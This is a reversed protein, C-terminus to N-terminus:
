FFRQQLDQKFPLFCIKSVSLIGSLMWNGSAEATGELVARRESLPQFQVKALIAFLWRGHSFTLKFMSLSMFLSILAEQAWWYIVKELPVFPNFLFVECPYYEQIGGNCCCLSSTSWSKKFVEMGFVHPRLAALGAPVHLIKDILLLSLSLTILPVLNCMVDHISNIIWENIAKTNDTGLIGVTHKGRQAM